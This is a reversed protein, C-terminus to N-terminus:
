ILFYLSGKSLGRTALVETSLNNQLATPTLPRQPDFPYQLTETRTKRDIVLGGFRDVRRRKEVELKRKEPVMQKEEKVEEAVVPM